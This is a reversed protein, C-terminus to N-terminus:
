SCPEQNNTLVIANPNRPRCNPPMNKGFLMDQYHHQVQQAIQESQYKDFGLPPLPNTYAYAHYRKNAGSLKSAATAAEANAQCKVSNWM